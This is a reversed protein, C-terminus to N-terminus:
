AVELEEIVAELTPLAELQEQLDRAAARMSVNQMVHSIADRIGPTTQESPALAVAADLGTVCRAHLSHDAGQPLLVCPRGHFLAGITTSYGGHCVVCVCRPMLASNPIYPAAFVNSPVSGLQHLRKEDGASLILNADAGEFADVIRRLLGPVTHYVTGLTAYVAPSSLLREAGRPCGLGDLDDVEVPRHRLVRVDRPEDPDYADPVM